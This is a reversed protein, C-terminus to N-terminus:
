GGAVVEGMMCNEFGAEDVSLRQAALDIGDALDDNETGDLETWDLM